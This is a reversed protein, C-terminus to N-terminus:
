HWHCHWAVSARVHLMQEKCLKGYSCHVAARVEATLEKMRKKIRQAPNLEVGGVDVESAGGQNRRKTNGSAAAAKQQERFAFVEAHEDLFEQEVGLRLLPFWALSM